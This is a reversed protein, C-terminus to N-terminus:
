SATRAAAAITSAAISTTATWRLRAPWAVAFGPFRTRAPKPSRKAATQVNPSAPGGTLTAGPAPSPTRTAEIQDQVAGDQAWGVAM